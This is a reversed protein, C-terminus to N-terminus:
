PHIFFNMEEKLVEVNLPLGSGQEGDIEIPIDSKENEDKLSIKFNSGRLYLIDKEQIPEKKVVQMMVRAINSVGGIRVAILDYKGDSLKQRITERDQRRIRANVIMFFVFQDEYKVGDVEICLNMKHIKSLVSMGKVWYAMRGMSNKMDSSINVLSAFSGASCVNVFYQENVRAVDVAMPIMASLAQMNEELDAGFGLSKAFANDTGAPIVGVPIKCAMEMLANVVENITGDGGAVFIAQTCSLNCEKLYEAMDGVRRSRFVRIEYEKESFIEIFRDLSFRFYTDGAKPNYILIIDKM